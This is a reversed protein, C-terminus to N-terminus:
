LYKVKLPGHVGGLGGAGVGKVLFIQLSERPENTTSVGTLEVHM